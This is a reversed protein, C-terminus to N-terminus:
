QGILGSIASQKSDLNSLAKEMATFKSYYFDEWRNVLKEQESIKSTYDNYQNKMEKDNYVTFASSYDTRKMLEDLKGYLNKSLSSFFSAVMEPDGAIMARLKDENTGSVEDDKDGDIHFANKENDAASFYGATAIGFDSLFMKKTTGNSLTVDVGALMMEKMASSVTGLTEDGKLLASKIKDEWEKVEDDSMAEKEEESLMKYKKASDANYLKDMENILENYEKFFKKVTDFMEDTDLQTSLTISESTENNITLTLGNINFTNKTSKFEEGNLKISADTAKLKVGIYRDDKDTDPDDTAYSPDKGLGIASLIKETDANEGYSFDNEVGMDKASVFFRQNTADFNAKVGSKSMESALKSLTMDATVTFTTEKGASTIRFTKDGSDFNLGLDSLKTDGTYNAKKGTEDRLEAGTHYGAKAMKVDTLTQVCNPANMSTVVSVASSSTKTAKKYFDTQFRLNSLTKSYFGYIKSNLSKWADQKWTLKKQDNELTKKKESKASVLASVISETDLGSVMGSLRVGSGM